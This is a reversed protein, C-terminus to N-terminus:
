EGLGLLLFLITHLNFLAHALIPVAIRGTREYALSFVIGLAVLPAITVLARHLCAFLLAPLVLALLRPARGRLFHFLGARFIYEEGIPALVVAMVTLGTLRLPSDTRRFIEVMDQKNVPLQLKILIQEWLFQVPHVVSITIVCTVLAPLLLSPLTALTEKYREYPETKQLFKIAVLSGAIQCLQAMSGGFIIMLVQDNKLAPIQLMFQALIQALIWSGIVCLAAM